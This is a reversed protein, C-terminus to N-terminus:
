ARRRRRLIATVILTVIGLFGLFGGGLMAFIGGVLSAPKADGGVGFEDSATGKCTVAYDSAKQVTVTFVAQWQNITLTGDYNDMKIDDDSGTRTRVNCRVHHNEGPNAVFITKTEGADFHVTTTEGNGFTHEADPAADSFNGIMGVGGLAAVLLGVILLAAGVGYWLKKPASKQQPPGPFYGPPPGYGYGM